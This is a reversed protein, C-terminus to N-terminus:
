SASYAYIVKTQSIVTDIDWTKNSRVESYPDNIVLDGNEDLGVAVIYHGNTTFDGPGVNIIAVKGQQLASRLESSSVGVETCSLGLRAAEGPLFSADTGDYTTAYGDNVALVGMDYPSKDTNGTLGTYVMSLATPCCGTVAFTTSSYETYGWREDWQYFRPVSQGTSASIVTEDSTLPEGTSQPYKDPWYLVFHRAAPENTALKFLKAEVAYGDVEYQDYHSAIWHVDADSQAAEIFPTADDSGMLNLLAAEDVQAGDDPKGTQEVTQSSASSSDSSSATITMSTTATNSAICGRPISSLAVIAVIIVVVGVVLKVLGFRNLLGTVFAAVANAVTGLFGLIAGLIRVPLADRQASGQERDPRRRQPTRNARRQSTRSEGEPSRMPQGKGDAGRQRTAQERQPRAARMRQRDGYTARSEREANSRASSTRRQAPAEEARSSVLRFSNENSMRRGTNTAGRRASRERAQRQEHMQRPTRPANPADSANERARDSFASTSRKDRASSRGREQRAQVRQRARQRRIEDENSM